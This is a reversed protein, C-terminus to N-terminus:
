VETKGLSQAEKLDSFMTLHGECKYHGPCRTHCWDLALIFRKRELKFGLDILPLIPPVYACSKVGFLEEDLTEMVSGSKQPTFFLFAIERSANMLM